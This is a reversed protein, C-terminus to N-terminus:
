FFHILHLIPLVFILSDFRDLLGGHGPLIKGSDKVDYHRKLGSEALDGLQGFISIVVAIGLLKPMSTLEPLHAVAQFIIAAILALVVGGLMGEVTKNPSIHPALKHKGLKRGVFYAGSDTTWIMILIFLIVGIGNHRALIFYYFSLGIYFTSFSTFAVRGYHFKNNTFISVLLLLITLILWIDMISMNVIYHTIEGHLVLLIVAVIGLSDALVVRKLKTMSVLESFAICAILTILISFPLQGIYLLALFLAGAVVGTIIRQKM